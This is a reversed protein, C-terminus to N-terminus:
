AEGGKVDTEGWSDPNTKLVPEVTLGGATDKAPEVIWDGVRFPPSPAQHEDNRDTM